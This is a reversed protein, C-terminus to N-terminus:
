GADFALETAGGAGGTSVHLVGNGATCAIEGAGARCSVEGNWWSEGALLVPTSDDWGVLTADGGHSSGDSELVLAGPAGDARCTLAGAAYNCAASGDALRFAAAAPTGGPHGTGAIGSVALVGGAPLVLAAV